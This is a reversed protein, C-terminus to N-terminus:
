KKRRRVVALIEKTGEQWLQEVLGQRRGDSLWRGLQSEKPVFQWDIIVHTAGLREWESILDSFSKIREYRILRNHGSDAWFYRRDFYFGLPMGYTAIVARKPLGKNVFEAVRYSPEVMQLFERDSVLGIAVPFPTLTAAQWLAVFVAYALGVSITVRTIVATLLKLRFWKTASWGVLVSLFGFAPLLYRMYQAEMLWWAFWLLMALTPASTAFPLTEFAITLISPLTLALPLFGISLNPLDQNDFKGCKWQMRCDGKQKCSKLWQRSCNGYRIENLAMNFPMALLTLFDRGGGFERNSITYTQAMEKTWNKGGFIEYAFPFVPNGTWLWNKFYWPSAILVAILTGAALQSWRPEGVRKIAWAGLPVILAILLLGTYKTGAAAGAFIGALILWKGDPQSHFRSIAFLSLLGYATLALDVYATTAEFFAVPLSAFFVAAVLGLKLSRERFATGWCLLTLQCVAFFLWHFLKAVSTSKLGTLGLGLLYLMQANMPFQAHHSFAIYQIRGDLWYLKPIALHYSLSDWETRLTPPVFCLSFALLNLFLLTWVWVKELISLENWGDVFPSPFRNLQRFLSLEPFGFAFCFGMLLYLATKNLWGWFGIFLLAYAVFISGLGLSLTLLELLSIGFPSLRRAFALGVSLIALLCFAFLVLDFLRQVFEM